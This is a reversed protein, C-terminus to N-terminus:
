PDGVLQLIARFTKVLEGGGGRHIGLGQVPHQPRQGTVADQRLGPVTVELQSGLGLEQSIVERSGQSPPRRHQPLSSRSVRPLAARTHSSPHVPTQDPTRSPATPTNAACGSAASVKVQM